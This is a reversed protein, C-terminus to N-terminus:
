VFERSKTKKKKQIYKLNHDTQFAVLLFFLTIVFPPFTKVYCAREFNFSILTEGVPICWAAWILNGQIHWTWVCQM